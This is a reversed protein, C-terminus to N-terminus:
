CKSAVYQVYVVNIPAVQFRNKSSGPRSLLKNEGVKRSGDKIAQSSSTFPDPAAVKSLKSECKKCVM